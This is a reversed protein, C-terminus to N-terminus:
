DYSEDSLIIFVKFVNESANQFLLHALPMIVDSIRGQVTNYFTSEFEIILELEFLRRITECLADVRPM